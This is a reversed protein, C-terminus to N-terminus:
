RAAADLLHRAIRTAGDTPLRNYGNDAMQKLRGTRRMESITLGLREADVLTTVPLCVDQEDAFRYNLSAFPGIHPLLVFMPLGLGVAWNTREHAAAVMVDMEPFIEATRTTEQQRTQSCIIGSDGLGTSVLTRRLRETGAQNTGAFRSYGM